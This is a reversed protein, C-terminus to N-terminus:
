MLDIIIVFLPEIQNLITMQFVNMMLFYLYDFLWNSFIEVAKTIKVSFNVIRDLSVFASHSSKFISIHFDLTHYSKEFCRCWLKPDLSFLFYNQRKEETDSSYTMINFLFKKENTISRLHIATLLNIMWALFFLHPRAEKDLAEDFFSFFFGEPSWHVRDISSYWIDQPYQGM